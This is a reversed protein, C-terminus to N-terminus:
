HAGNGRIVAPLTRLLIKFDLSLSWNDVYRLDQTSMYDFDQQRGEV